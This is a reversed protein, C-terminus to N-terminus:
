GRPTGAPEAPRPSATPANAPSASPTAARRAAPSPSPPPTVPEGTRTHPIPTVTAKPKPPPTKAMALLESVTAFKFGKATLQDLTQPVAEVSGPHIDHLLIISGPRSQNVIRDRIVGPGPRKWDFPDVDWIITRYGFSDYIWQKQRPTISGYPPRFLTTRTGAAAKIADDTKQLQARVGDDGMKGLNPHSWSHNALEHGEAVIRKMIQPYEVANKGIVFFTAKLKRAALMDLLKPTLTAHPGDDFTIAVYPEEVYVSNFTIQPGSRPTAPPPTVHPQEAAPPMPQQPQQAVAVCSSFLGLLAVLFLRQGFM